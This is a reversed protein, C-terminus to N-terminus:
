DMEDADLVAPPGAALKARVFAREGDDLDREGARDDALFQGLGARYTSPDVTPASGLPRDLVLEAVGTQEGGYAFGVKALAHYAYPNNVAITARDLGRDTARVRACLGAVLRPGLGEGRRDARVTVYRLRLRRDDTRDRDFAVAALVEGDADSAEDGGAGGRGERDRALPARLVAKGTASTVFKGAYAFERHDLRLTPGDDPWGLLDVTPSV